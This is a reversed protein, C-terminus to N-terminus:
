HPLPPQRGPAPEASAQQVVLAQGVFFDDPMRSMEAMFTALERMVLVDADICLTWPRGEALGKELSLRLTASFPRASVRHIERGPFLRQLMAVCTAATREGCERVIVTVDSSPTSM